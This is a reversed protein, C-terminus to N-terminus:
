RCAVGPCALLDYSLPLLPPHPHNPLHHPQLGALLNPPLSNIRENWSQENERSEKM